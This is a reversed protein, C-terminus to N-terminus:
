NPEFDESAKRISRRKGFIATGIRVLTAGEQVAVEFDGSMGMSLHPLPIGSERSTRDRQERLRRFCPRAKEPDDSFPAMTMFGEVILHPLANMSKLTGDLQDPLIGFKSKEGSVNVELLVRQNKGAQAAEKDLVEALRLSDVSHILEFLRVADRTKNTQLHGILDWRLGDGTEHIKARAEQVKNEGFIKVGLAAAAQVVEPPHTKTVAVIEVESRNRGARQCAKQIREEVLKLNKELTEREM